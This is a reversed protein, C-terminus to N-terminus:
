CLYQLEQQCDQVEDKSPSDTYTSLAFSHNSELFICKLFIMQERFFWPKAYHQRRLAEPPM